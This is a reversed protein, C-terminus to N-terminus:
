PGATALNGIMYGFIGPEVVNATLHALVVIGREFPSRLVELEECSYPSVVRGLVTGGRVEGGLTTVEPLLLGGHHPRLTAIERLVIQGPPPQPDGPLMQLTRLINILGNLGRAVFHSQDVDGGGLEVVLSPTGRGRTVSISTGELPIEPRYLLRSGFARSLPEANLIYVYDVTPYAGGAHLDVYYDLKGLFEEAMVAALQETLQGDRNGPFVRNLNVMDIPTGRSVAAYSFPNAVPLVLLRGALDGFNTATLFRYVIEVGVAEEGHIGASIGLTPGPRDGVVEHLPLILETGSALHAVRVPNYRRTTM